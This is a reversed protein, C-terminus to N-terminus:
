DSSQAQLSNMDLVKNINVILFNKFNLAANSLSTFANGM